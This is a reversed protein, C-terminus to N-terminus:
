IKAREGDMPEGLLKTSLQTTLHHEQISLLCEHFKLGPVEKQLLTM